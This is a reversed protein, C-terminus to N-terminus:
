RRASAKQDKGSTRSKGDNAKKKEEARKGRNPNSLQLFRRYWAAGSAFLAGFIPSLLFGTVIFEQAQAADPATSFIALPVFTVLLANVIASVLGVILGLLWSARPALFGAIFVGGIAPPRVFYEYMLSTISRPDNAVAVVIGGVVTIAVPIWLAYTHTVLWPLSALDARLDVPHFAQRFATGMSIRGAPSSMAPKSASGSKSSGSPAAATAAVEAGATGDAEATAARHRRRAEARDTRKARAL